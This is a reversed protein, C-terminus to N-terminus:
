AGAAISALSPAEYEVAVTQVKPASDVVRVIRAAELRSASLLPSKGWAIGVELRDGVRLSRSTGIKVLLGGGSVDVTQAAHYKVSSALKVKAPRSLAFRPYARRDQDSTPTPM